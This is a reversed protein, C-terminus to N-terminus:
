NIENGEVSCCESFSVCSRTRLNRTFLCFWSCFGVGSCFASRGWSLVTTWDALPVCQQESIPAMMSFVLSCVLQGVAGGAPSVSQGLAEWPLRLPRHQLFQRIWLSAGLDWAPWARQSPSGCPFLGTFERPFALLPLVWLVPELLGLPSACSFTAWTYCM